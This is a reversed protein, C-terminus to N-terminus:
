VNTEIVTCGDKIYFMERGLSELLSFQEFTMINKWRMSEVLTSLWSTGPFPHFVKYENNMRMYRNLEKAMKQDTSAMAKSDWYTKVKFVGFRKKGNPTLETDVELTGVVHKLTRKNYVMYDTEYNNHANKRVKEDYKRKKDPYMSIITSQQDRIMEKIKGQPVDIIVEYDPNYPDPRSYMRELAHKTFDIFFNEPEIFPKQAKAPEQQKPSFKKHWELYRPELKMIEEEDDDEIGLERFAQRTKEYEEREVREKEERRRREEESEENKKSM